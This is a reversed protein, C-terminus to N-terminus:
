RAWPLQPRVAGTPGTMPAHSRDGAPPQHWWRVVGALSPEPRHPPATSPTGVYLFGLLVDDGLLGLASKVREDSCAAGSRWMTGFGLETAALLLNQTAAAVACVQADRTINGPTIRAGVAIVMPARTLRAREVEARGDVAEVDGAACRDRYGAALIEGFALRDEGEFVVFRWPKLRGHDPATVAASLLWELQDRDPAPEALRPTSRRRRMTAVVGSTEM